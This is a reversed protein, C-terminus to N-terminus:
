IAVNNVYLVSKKTVIQNKLCKPKEWFPELMDFKPCKKQGNRLIKELKSCELLVHKKLFIM